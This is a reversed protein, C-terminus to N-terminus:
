RTASAVPAHDPWAAATVRPLWEGSRARISFTCLHSLPTPEPNIEITMVGRAAASELLGAAPYVVASTGISLFLDCASVAIAAATLAPEPLAEGFWVVGPRLLGARDFPSRPPFETMPEPPPEVEQGTVTCRWRMISGHLEIVGASGARHHLRDVNQTILAFEGGSEEIRRQMQALAVHGPNPSLGLCRVRRWDYWRSVTEPDSAFAPPTALTMPDRGKWLADAGSRFTPVGSEASVGAGTLVVIRRSRRIAAGVEAVLAGDDM